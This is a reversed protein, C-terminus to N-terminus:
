SLCLQGRLPFVQYGLAAVFHVLSGIQHESLVPILSFDFDGLVVLFHQVEAWLPLILGSDVLLLLFRFILRNFVPCRCRNCLILEETM